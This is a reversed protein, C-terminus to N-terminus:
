VEALISGIEVVTYFGKDTVLGPDILGLADKGRHLVIAAFRVMTERLPSPIFTALESAAQEPAKMEVLKIILGAHPKLMAVMPAFERIEDQSLPVSVTSEEQQPNIVQPAAQHAQSRNLFGGLAQGLMPLAEKIVGPWSTDDEPEDEPEPKVPSKLGALKFAMELSSTQEQRVLQMLAIMGEMGAMPNQPPPPAVRAVAREIMTEMMGAMKEMTFGQGSDIAQATERLSRLESFRPPPPPAAQVQFPSWGCATAYDKSVTIRCAKGGWAGRPGPNLVLEYRGEGYDFAIDELKYSEVTCDRVLELTQSGPVRRGVKLRAQTVAEEPLKWLGILDNACTPMAAIFGQSGEEQEIAPPPPVKKAFRRTRTQRTPEGTELSM